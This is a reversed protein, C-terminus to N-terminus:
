LSLITIKVKMRDKMYIRIIGLQWSQNIKNGTYLVHATQCRPVLCSDLAM